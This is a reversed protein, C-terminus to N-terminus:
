SLTGAHRSASPYRKNLAAGPARTETEFFIYILRPPTQSRRITKKYANEIRDCRYRQNMENACIPRAHCNWVPLHKAGHHHEHRDLLRYCACGKLRRKWGLFAIEMTRSLSPTAGNVSTKRRYGFGYKTRQQDGTANGDKHGIGIPKQLGIQEAPDQNDLAKRKQRRHRHCRQFAEAFSCIGFSGQRRSLPTPWM